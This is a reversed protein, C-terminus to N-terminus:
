HWPKMRRLISRICVRHALKRLGAREDAKQLSNAENRILASDREALQPSFHVNGNFEQDLNSVILGDAWLLKNGVQVVELNATPSQHATEPQRPAQTSRFFKETAPM